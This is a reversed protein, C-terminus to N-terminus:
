TRMLRARTTVSCVLKFTVGVCSACVCVCVCQLDSVEDVSLSATTVMEMADSVTSLVSQRCWAAIRRRWKVPAQAHAADATKFQAAGSEGEPATMGAFGFCSERRVDDEPMESVATAACTSHTRQEAHACLTAFSSSVEFQEDDGAGFVSSSLQFGLHTMAVDRYLAGIFTTFM